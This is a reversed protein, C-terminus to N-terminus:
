VSYITPLTLHTYSVAAPTSVIVAPAPAMIAVVPLIGQASTMEIDAPTETPAPAAPLVNWSAHYAPPPLAYDSIDSESPSCPRTGMPEPPMHICEESTFFDVDLTKTTSSGDCTKNNEMNCAMSIPTQNTNPSPFRQKITRAPLLLKVPLKPILSTNKSKSCTKHSLHVYALLHTRLSNSAMTPTLSSM